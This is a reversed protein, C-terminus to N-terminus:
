AHPYCKHGEAHAVRSFKNFVPWKHPAKRMCHTLHVGGMSSIIEREGKSMYLKEALHGKSLHNLGGQVM